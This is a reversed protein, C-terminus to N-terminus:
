SYPHVLSQFSEVFAPQSLVPTNITFSCSQMSAWSPCYAYMPVTLHPIQLNGDVLRADGIYLDENSYPMISFICDIKSRLGNLLRNTRSMLNKGIYSAPIQNRRQTLGIDINRALKQIINITDNNTDNNSACIFPNQITLTIFGHNNFFLENTVGMIVMINLHKVNSSHSTLGAFMSFLSLAMLVSSYRVAPMTSKISKIVAQSFLFKESWTTNTTHTTPTAAPQPLQSPPMMIAELASKCMLYETVFPIYHIHPLAMYKPRQHKFLVPFILKTALAQGDHYQHNFLLAMQNDHIYLRFTTTNPDEPTNWQGWAPIPAQRVLDDVLRQYHQVPRYSFQKTVHNVKLTLSSHPHANIHSLLDDKIRGISDKTILRDFEFTLIVFGTHLTPTANFTADHGVLEYSQRKYMGYGQILVSVYLLYIFFLVIIISKKM